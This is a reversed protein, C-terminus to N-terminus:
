FSFSLGARLERAGSWQDRKGDPLVANTEDEETAPQAAPEQTYALPYNLKWFMQRAELRIALNQSLHLNVGVSPTLFIKSGFRYGSSDQAVSSKLDEGIVLGIGMGVFPALRHWTKRGTINFQLGAELFAMDQDVPGDVRNDVSDDASVVLRELTGKAFSVGFSIPGSLRLEARGGIAHGNHPGVGIRGGDGAIDGYLATITKSKTIDRYPSRAPDHGVQASLPAASLTLCLCALSLRM